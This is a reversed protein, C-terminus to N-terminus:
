RFIPVNCWRIVDFVIINQSFFPPYGLLHGSLDQRYRREGGHQAECAETSLGGLTAAPTCMTARITTAIKVPPYDHNIRCRDDHRRRRDYYNSWRPHNAPWSQTPVRSPVAAPRVLGTQRREAECPSM